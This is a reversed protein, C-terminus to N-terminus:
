DKNNGDLNFLKRTIDINTTKDGHCSNQKLHLTPDHLIKNILADVMRNIAQRDDQNLHKRAHFTKAVETKAISTFKNRLDVVTPIADLSKLWDQFAIVAEDVIREGKVAEKLRENINCDIVGKLDDIDYVYSNNIRNIDPDIDRPVAIDIFFLPRNKRARMSKKVNERTLIYGPAGTSSIIIDVNKLIETIEELRIAQGNFRKALVVGRELTRNAVFINGAKHRVLHDVALEAMEGAGVLLVHKGELSGFIKQGLEIAAYSISVASDCIGTESRVRKAVFFARHLLRNLIVGSTKNKTAIFYAEKVQGLIQPEGVVMSDLSSAVRFLHRVAEAGTHIYIYNSYDEAPINKFESVFQRTASLAQKKDHSTILVEVRNCTSFILLERITSLGHLKKLAYITEDRSFAFKERLELSATKHNLGFLIIENIDFPMSGGPLDVM